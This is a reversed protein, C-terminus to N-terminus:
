KVFKCKTGWISCKIEVNLFIDVSKAKKFNHKNLQKALRSNIYKKHMTQILQRINYWDQVKTTLIHNFIHAKKYPIKKRWRESDSISIYLFLVIWSKSNAVM